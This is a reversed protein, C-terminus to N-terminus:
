YIKFNKLETTEIIDIPFKYRKGTSIEEAVIPYKPRNTMVSVLKFLRRNITFVAGYANDKLGVWNAHKKFTAADATPSDASIETAVISIKIESSSYSVRTGPSDINYKAFVEKLAKEVDNKINIAIEKTM